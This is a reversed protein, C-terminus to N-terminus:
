SSVHRSIYIIRFLTAPWGCAFPENERGKKQSSVGGWKAAFVAHCKLPLLSSPYGSSFIRGSQSPSEQESITRVGYPEMLVRTLLSDHSQQPYKNLFTNLFQPLTASNGGHMGNFYQRETRFAIPEDIADSAM